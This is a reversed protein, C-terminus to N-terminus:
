ARSGTHRSRQSKCSFIGGLLKQINNHFKTYCQLHALDLGAACMKLCLPLAPAEPVMITVSKCIQSPPGGAGLDKNLYPPRAYFVDKGGCVHYRPRVKTALSAVVESGAM